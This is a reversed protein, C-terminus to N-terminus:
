SVQLVAIDKSLNTRQDYERPVYAKIVNAKILDSDTSNAQIVGAVVSLKARQFEVGNIVTVCHAATLVLDDGIITGGCLPIDNM